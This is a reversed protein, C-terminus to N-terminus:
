AANDKGGLTPKNVVNTLASGAQRRRRMREKAAIKGTNVKPEDPVDPKFISGM